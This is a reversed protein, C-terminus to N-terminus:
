LPVFLGIEETGARYDCRGSPPFFLYIATPSLQFIYACSLGIVNVTLM